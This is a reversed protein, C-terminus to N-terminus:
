PRLVQLSVFLASVYAYCGRFSPPFISCSLEPGRNSNNIKYYTLYLIFTEQWDIKIRKRSLSLFFM